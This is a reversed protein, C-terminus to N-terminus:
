VVQDPQAPPGLMVRPNVYFADSTDVMPVPTDFRDVAILFDTGGTDHILYWGYITNPTTIGSVQFFKPTLAQISDGAQNDYPTGILATAQLLYGDFDAEELDTLLMNPNPVVDNKFLGVKVDGYALGTTGSTMLRRIEDAMMVFM